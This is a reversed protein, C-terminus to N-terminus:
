ISEERHTYSRKRPEGGWAEGRAEVGVYIPQGEVVKQIKSVKYMGQEKKQFLSLTKMKHWPPAKESAWM